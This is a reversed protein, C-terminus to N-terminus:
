RPPLDPVIVIGKSDKVNVLQPIITSTKTATKTLNMRKIKDVNMLRREYHRRFAVERDHELEEEFNKNIESWHKLKEDVTSRALDQAVQKEQRIHDRVNKNIQLRNNRNVNVNYRLLEKELKHYYEAFKQAHKRTTGTVNSSEMKLEKLKRVNQDNIAFARSRNENITSENLKKDSKNRKLAAQRYETNFDDVVFKVNDKVAKLQANREVKKAYEIQKDKMLYAADVARAAELSKEVSKAYTNRAILQERLSKKESSIKHRAKDNEIQKKLINSKIVSAYYLERTSEKRKDDLIRKTKADRSLPSNLTELKGHLGDDLNNKTLDKFHSIDLFSEGNKTNTESKLLSMLKSYNIDVKGKEFRWSPSAPRRRGERTINMIRQFGKAKLGLEKDLKKRTLFGRIFRQLIVVPSYHKIVLNIHNLMQTLIQFNKPSPNLNVKLNKSFAHYKSKGFTVGEIIEEDSLIYHDLAKISWMTNVTHHRYGSRKYIPCNYLTLAILNPIVSLALLSEVHHIGNNHLNLVKLKTCKKMESPSPLESIINGELNLWEVNPCSSVIVGLDEICNRPFSIIRIKYAFPNNVITAAIKNVSETNYRPDYVLIESEM